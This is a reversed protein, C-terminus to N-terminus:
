TQTSKKPLVAQGHSCARVLHNRMKERDFRSAHPFVGDDRALRLPLTPASGPDGAVHTTGAVAENNVVKGTGPLDRTKTYM